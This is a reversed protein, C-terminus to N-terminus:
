GGLTEPREALSAFHDGPAPILRRETLDLLGGVNTIEAAVAGDTRVCRPHCPPERTRAQWSPPAINIPM